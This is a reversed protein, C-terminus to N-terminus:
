VEAISQDLKSQPSLNFIARWMFKYGLIYMVIGGTAFMMLYFTPLFILYTSILYNSPEYNGNLFDPNYFLLSIRSLLYVIGFQALLQGIAHYFRPTVGYQRLKYATFWGSVLFTIWAMWFGVPNLRYDEATLSNFAFNQEVIEFTAIFTLIFVLAWYFNHGGVFLLLRKWGIQVLKSYTETVVIEDLEEVEDGLNSIGDMDPLAFDFDDGPVPEPESMLEDMEALMSSKEASTDSDSAVEDLFSLDDTTSSESTVTDLFDLDADANATQDMEGKPTSTEETVGEVYDMDPIAFDMEPEGYGEDMEGKPNSTEETVGEVYDMDPIAFDMEPEGYGEDMEGKPNSTEETVGEVYDMDPIAFDMEPEGYGKDMEGKPSSTEETVGEVYDMDPIVFDLDAPEQSQERPSECNPCTAIESGYATGCSWCPVEESM